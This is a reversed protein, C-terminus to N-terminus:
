RGRGIPSTVHCRLVFGPDNGVEDEGDDVLDEPQGIGYDRHREVLQRRRDLVQPDVGRTSSTEVLDLIRNPVEGYEGIGVDAHHRM